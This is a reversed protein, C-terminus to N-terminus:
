TGPLSGSDQLGLTRKSSRLHTSLISLPVPFPAVLSQYQPFWASSSQGASKPEEMVKMKKCLAEETEIWSFLKSGSEHDM